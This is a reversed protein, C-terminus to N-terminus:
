KEQHCMMCGYGSNFVVVKEPSVTQNNAVPRNFAVVNEQAQKIRNELLWRYPWSPYNRALKANNYIKIATQVNGQKVLMDGMNLFFGEFNYPTIWSNWCVRQPGEQTEFKMYMSFDPNTRNIRQGACKDLTEWQWELGKKFYDTDAPLVSMPYGATFYNFQPWDSIAKKLTFYGRTQQREDNFIKGEVLQSVGLFGLYRADNPDLEVADSFYKDALVIHNVITSKNNKIRNREAIKWIHIFGLHAALKPDNPNQLYAATLLQTTYPINDYRGQHLTDWFTKEALDALKNQSSIPRKKPTTMVALDGCGAILILVLGIGIIKTVM